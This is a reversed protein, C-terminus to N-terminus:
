RSQYNDAHTGGKATFVADRTLNMYEAKSAFPRGKRCVRCRACCRGIHGSSLPLLVTLTECGCRECREAPHDARLHAPPPANVATM